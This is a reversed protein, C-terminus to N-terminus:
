NSQKTFQNRLLEEIEICDRAHSRGIQHLASYADVADKNEEKPQKPFKAFRRCKPQISAHLYAFVMDDPTKTLMNAVSAYAITDHHLMMGRILMFRNSAFFRTIDGYVGVSKM